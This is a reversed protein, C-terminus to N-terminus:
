TVHNTLLFNAEESLLFGAKVWDFGVMSCPSRGYYNYSDHIIEVPYSGDYTLNYSSGCLDAHEFHGPTTRLTIANVGTDFTLESM